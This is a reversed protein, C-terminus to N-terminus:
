SSLELILEAKLQKDVNITIAYAKTNLEKPVDEILNIKHDWKRWESLKEFKKKNFLYIFPQIYKLLDESNIPDLEKGTKQQGKNKDDILQLRQIRSIFSIDQHQTRYERLCITFWITRINWNVELNYKVSWDYELFMGTNYLKEMRPEIQM